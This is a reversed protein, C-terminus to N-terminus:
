GMNQCGISSTQKLDVVREMGCEALSHKVVLSGQKILLEEKRTKYAAFICGVMINISSIPLYLCITKLESHSSTSLPKCQVTDHNVRQVLM